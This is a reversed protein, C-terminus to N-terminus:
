GALAMRAGIIQIEPNDIHEALWDAVAFFLTPM